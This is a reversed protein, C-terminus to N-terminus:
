LMEADRRRQTEATEEGGGEGEGRKGGEEKRRLASM